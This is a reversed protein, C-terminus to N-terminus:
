SAAWQHSHFSRVQMTKQAMAGNQRFQAQNMQGPNFSNQIMMGQPPIGPMPRSNPMVGGNFQQNELRPRKSPSGGNDGEAPSGPRGNMDVDNQERSMQQQQMQQQLAQQQQQQQMKM